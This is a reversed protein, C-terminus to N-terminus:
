AQQQRRALALKRRSYGCELARDYGTGAKWLKEETRLSVLSSNGAKELAGGTLEM